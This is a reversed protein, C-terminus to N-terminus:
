RLMRLTETPYTAPVQRADALCRRPMHPTPNQDLRWTRRVPRPPIIEMRPKRARLKLCALGLALAAGWILALFITMAIM